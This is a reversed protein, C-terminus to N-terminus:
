KTDLFTLNYPKIITASINWPFLSIPFSTALNLIYIKVIKIKKCSLHFLVQRLLSPWHQGNHNWSINPGNGTM